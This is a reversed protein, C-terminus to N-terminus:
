LGLDSMDLGVFTDESAPTIVAKSKFVPKMAFGFEIDEGPRNPHSLTNIVGASLPFSTANANSYMPPAQELHGFEKYNDNFIGITQNAVEGFPDQILDEDTLDFEELISIQGFSLFMIGQYEDNSFGMAIIHPNATKLRTVLESEGADQYECGFINNLSIAVSEGFTSASDLLLKQVETLEKEEPM